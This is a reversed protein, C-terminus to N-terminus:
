GQYHSRIAYVFVIEGIIAYSILHERHVIRRYEAGNRAFLFRGLRPLTAISNFTKYFSDIYTKAQREGWTEATYKEISSLSSRAQNLLKLHM